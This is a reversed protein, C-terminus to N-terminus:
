LDMRKNMDLNFEGYPNIHAYMMPTLARLDEKELRKYLCESQLLVQQIQLTNIYVMCNQILQLSLMAIEQEELQNHRIEGGQGYFVFDSASHWNEVINLGSHIEKRLEESMFYDCLFMTKIVKGLEQLAQFTPHSSNKTFQKLISETDATNVRLATAYKVIENYQRSILEWNISRKGIVPALNEYAEGPLAKYLKQDHINKFRPLLDFGLLHCFAFGVNSQGHTDVYNRDIPKDSAHHLLGHLMAAVESSNPTNVQSYICMSKEEIHWYVSVGPGRYRPFWQTRLNQDYAVVRTSDSSCSTTGQGWIKPNRETLVAHIIKRNAARLNEAHIYKRKVYLLDRYSIQENGSVVRKIGTNTGIGYLCLILRKQIENRDLREHTALSQFTDSFGTRLDTEKIFDILNM